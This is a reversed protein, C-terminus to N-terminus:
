NKLAKIFSYYTLKKAYNDDFLLPWDPNNFFGPIWSDADSVDWTTIGYQQGKPVITKYQQVVFYYKNEQATKLADTYTLSPNNATNVRIDLESIHIQLGTNALQQIANIIGDNSTNLDIHMQIGLGDIPINRSKFDNVMNVIANIKGTSWEQGYENYFLLAKPDAEHAYSFVRAMYDKGLHRAWICGDDFNDSPNTDEVHLTGDEHFAENVVDWSAIKEKYHSVVTEIHTKLLNEWAASDGAFNNLWDPNYAYWLLNHGHMRKGTSTAFNVIVDGGSFDFENEQPHVLQWKLVNEATISNLENVLINKYATNNQLLTPDIAAGVRFPAVSQLTEGPPAPQSGSHKRCGANIFLLITFLFFQMKFNKLKFNKTSAPKGVFSPLLTVFINAIAPCLLYSIM